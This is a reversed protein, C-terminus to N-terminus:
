LHKSLKPLFFLKMVVHARFETSETTQRHIIYVTPRHTCFTLEGSTLSGSLTSSTITNFNSKHQRIYNAEIVVLKPLEIGM